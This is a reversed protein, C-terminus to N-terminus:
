MKLEPNVLPQYQRTWTEVRHTSVQHKYELLKIKNKNNNNEKIREENLM